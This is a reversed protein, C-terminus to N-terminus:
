PQRKDKCDHTHAAESLTVAKVQTNTHTHTCTHQVHVSYSAQKHLSHVDPTYTHTIGQGITRQNISGTALIGLRKCTGPTSGYISWHRLNTVFTLSHTNDKCVTKMNIRWNVVTWVFIRQLM